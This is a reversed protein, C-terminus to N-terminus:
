FSDDQGDLGHVMYFLLLSYTSFMIKWDFPSGVGAGCCGWGDGSSGICNSKISASTLYFLDTKM